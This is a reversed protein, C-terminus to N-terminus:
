KRNLEKNREKKEILKEITVKFFSKDQYLAIIEERNKKYVELLSRTELSDPDAVFMPLDLDKPLEMLYSKVSRNSIGRQQEESVFMKLKKNLEYIKDNSSQDGRELLLNREHYNWANERGYGLLTGILGNHGKLLDVLLYKGKKCQNWM